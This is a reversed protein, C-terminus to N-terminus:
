AMVAWSWCSPPRRSRSCGAPPTTKASWVVFWSMPIVNVGAPLVNLSSKNLRHPLAM